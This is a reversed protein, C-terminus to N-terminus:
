GEEEDWKGREEDEFLDDRITPRVHVPQPTTWECRSRSPSSRSLGTQVFPKFRGSRRPASTSGKAMTTLLRHFFPTTVHCRDHSTVSRSSRCRCDEPNIAM